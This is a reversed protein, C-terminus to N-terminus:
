GRKLSEDGFGEQQSSLTAGLGTVGYRKCCILMAGWGCGIDILRDGPQLDLKRCILEYKQVQM